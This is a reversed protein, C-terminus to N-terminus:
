NNNARYDEYWTSDTENWHLTISDGQGLVVNAAGDLQCNCNDNIQVTKTQDTGVITVRQGDAYGDAIAPDTDLLANGAGSSVVRVIASGVPISSDDAQSKINHGCSLVDGVGRCARVNTATNVALSLPTAAAHGGFRCASISQGYNYASTKIGITGAFYFEFHSGTITNRTSTVADLPDGFVVCGAAGSALSIQSGVISNGKGGHFRIAYDASHNIWIGSLVSMEVYRMLVAPMTDVGEESNGLNAQFKVSQVTGQRSEGIVAGMGNCYEVWGGLWKLGWPNCIVVGEGACNFLGVMEIHPDYCQEGIVIGAQDGDYTEGVRNGQISFDRFCTYVQASGPAGGEYTFAACDAGAQRKYTTASIGSGQITVGAGTVKVSGVIRKIACDADAGVGYNEQVPESLVLGPKSEVSNDAINGGAGNIDATLTVSDPAGAITAIEYVGATVGTGATLILRDGVAATGFAGAETLTKTADTWNAGALTIDPTVYDVSAILPEHNAELTNGGGDAGGSVRYIQGVALDAYAGVSYSELTAGCQQESLAGDVYGYVISTGTVVTEGAPAGYFLTGPAAQVRGGTASAATVAQQLQVHDDTGDTRLVNPGGRISIPCNSPVVLWVADTDQGGRDMRMQAAAPRSYAVATLGLLVAALLIRRV